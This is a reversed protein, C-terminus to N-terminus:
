KLTKNLILANNVNLDNMKEELFNKKHILGDL